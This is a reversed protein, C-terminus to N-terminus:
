TRTASVYGLGAFMAAEQDDDTQISLGHAAFLDAASTASVEWGHSDLYGVVENRDGGYWLDTMELDFGHHRWRDTVQRMRDAMM